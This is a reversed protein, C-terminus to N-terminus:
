EAWASEPEPPAAEPPEPAVPESVTPPPAPPPEVTVMLTSPPPSPGAVDQSPPSASEPCTLREVPLAGLAGRRRGTLAGESMEIGARAMLTSGAPLTPWGDGGRQRLLYATRATRPLVRGYM